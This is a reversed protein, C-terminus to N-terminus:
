RRLRARLRRYSDADLQDAFVTLYRQRWRRQDIAFSLWYRNAMGSLPWLQEGSSGDALWYSLGQQDVQLRVLLRRRRWEWAALAAAALLLAVKGVLPAGSSVIGTVALSVALLLLRLPWRSPRLEICASVAPLFISSMTQWNPM